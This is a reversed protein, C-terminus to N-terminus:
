SEALQTDIWMRLDSLESFHHARVGVSEAGRVNELSDDIFLWEHSELGLQRSVHAYADVHPKAVGIQASNFVFDFSDSLELQRLDHALRSSANTLLAVTFRGRLEQVYDLVDHHVSGRLQSWEAVAGLAGDGYQTALEAALVKRWEEDSIVGTTVDVFLPGSMAADGIAGIPLGHRAEVVSEETIHWDRIVGNLDFVIAKIKPERTSSLPSVSTLAVM